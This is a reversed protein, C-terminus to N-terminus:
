DYKQLKTWYPEWLEELVDVHVSPPIEDLNLNYSDKILTLHSVTPPLDKLPQNIRPINLEGIALHTLSSPLQSLSQDLDFYFKYLFLHTITSPLRDIERVLDSADLLMLYKLSPPPNINGVFSPGTVLHTLSVPLHDLEQSFFRGVVLHTM